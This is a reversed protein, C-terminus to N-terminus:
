ISANYILYNLQLGRLFNFNSKKFQFEGPYNTKSQPDLETSTLINNPLLVFIAFIRISKLINYYLLYRFTHNNWNAELKM